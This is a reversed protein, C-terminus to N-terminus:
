SFVLQVLLMYVATGGAISILDNRKWLHLAIVVVISIFQPLFHGAARFDTGRICYIVLIAIVAQPLTKGLRTFTESLRGNKGFFLFPFVRTLFTCLAAVAVIMLANMRIM